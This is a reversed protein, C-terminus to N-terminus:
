GFMEAYLRTSIEYWEVAKPDTAQEGSPAAPPPPILGSPIPLKGNQHEYWAINARLYYALFNVQFWPITVATHWDIVSQAVGKQQNLQGLRIKLDWVSFEFSFNNAYITRVNEDQGLRRNLRELFEAVFEPITEHQKGKEEDM